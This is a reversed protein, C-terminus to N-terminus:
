KQPVFGWFDGFTKKENGKPMSGKTSAGFQPKPAPEDEDDHEVNFMDAYDEKFSKLQEDLDKEQDIKGLLMEAYKENKVGKDTLARISEKKEYGHVKEMLDKYEQTEKFDSPKNDKLYDEVAKKRIEELDEKNVLDNTSAGFMQMISDILDNVVNEDLEHRNLENRLSKRTLKPM